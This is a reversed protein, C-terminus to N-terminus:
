IIEQKTEKEAAQKSCLIQTDLSPVLILPKSPTLSATFYSLSKQVCHNQSHHKPALFAPPILM